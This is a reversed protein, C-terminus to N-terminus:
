APTGPGNPAPTARVSGNLVLWRKPLVGRGGLSNYRPQQSDSGGAPEGQAGVVAQACSGTGGPRHAWAAPFQFGGCARRPCWGGRPCSEGGGSALTGRGTFVGIGGGARRSCRGGGPCSEGDGSAPTGPGTSLAVGRLGEKLMSWRGPLVGRGGLSTNRATPM